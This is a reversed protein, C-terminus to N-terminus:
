GEINRMHSSGDFLRLHRPRCDLENAVEYWLVLSTAADGSATPLYIVTPEKKGTLRFLYKLLLQDRDTNSFTRGGGAFIRRTPEDAHAFTTLGLLALLFAVIRSM